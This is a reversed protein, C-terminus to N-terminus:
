SQVGLCGTVLPSVQAQPYYRKLLPLSSPMSRRVQAKRDATAQYVRQQSVRQRLLDCNEQFRQAACTAEYEAKAAEKEAALRMARERISAKRQEPTMQM